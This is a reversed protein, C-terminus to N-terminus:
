KLVGRLHRYYDHDLINRSIVFKQHVEKNIKEVYNNPINEKYPTFVRSNADYRGYDTIWSRDNFIVLSDADSLLDRGMLLRSDFNIGFLNLVTPLIDLSSSLKNVIVNNEMASNWIVLNSQHLDFKENKITMKEQMQKTTLGYPYHDTAMVIVTDDLVGKKDLESILLELARDLEIHTAIYARIATSYSLHEVYQQNKRAMNNGFFNYELHGSLTMYYTMFKPQNIYRHITAQMLEIDSAPWVRCRIQNELGNGCAQWRYGLNPFSQHRSYYTSWGNHFANTSYGMKKFLNGYSYPLYNKSSARMSWSTEKPLLSMLNVYEGDSTSVFYVPAYFNNFVFGNNVLKYITPTLEPHVAIPSFAEATIVILNKGEFYGTYKNQESPKQNAMYSHINKITKNPANEILLDFDIDLMNFTIEPVFVEPPREMVEITEEFGLLLREVDLRMTAMLGLLRASHNPVHKNYYVNNASYLERHDLRVILSCGFYILVLLLLKYSLYRYHVDFVLIKKHFYILLPIPLIFLLVVLFNGKIVAIIHNFFEFVQGGNIMSYISVINGYFKYNIFQMGFLLIIFGIITIYLWKNIKHTFLNTLIDIGISSLITFLIIFLFSKFGLVNFTAFHYVMELYFIILFTLIIKRYNM